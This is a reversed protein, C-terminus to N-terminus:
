CSTWASASSLVMCMHFRPALAAVLPMDGFNHDYILVVGAGKSHVVIRRQRRTRHGFASLFREEAETEGPLKSLVIGMKM